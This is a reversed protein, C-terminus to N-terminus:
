VSAYDIRDRGPCERNHKEMKAKGKESYRYLIYFLCKIFVPYANGLLKPTGNCFINAKERFCGAGRILCQM